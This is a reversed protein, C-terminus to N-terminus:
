SEEDLAEAIANMLEECDEVKTDFADIIEAATLGLAEVIDYVDFRDQLLEREENTLMEFKLGPERLGLAATKASFVSFVSISPEGIVGAKPKILVVLVVSM